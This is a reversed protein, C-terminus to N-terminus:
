ELYNTMLMLCQKNKREKLVNGRTLINVRQEKKGKYFRNSHTANDIGYFEHANNM